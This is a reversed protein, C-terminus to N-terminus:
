VDAVNADCLEGALGKAALWGCFHQTIRQESCEQGAFRQGMTGLRACLATDEWLLQIKAVLDPVSALSATLANEGNHVYDRVGLADTVIVAKGLHMAAVLTVHGSPINFDVLPLVTFRSYFLVNMALGNPLNQYTLVNQPIDLGRLSEPRVVLVFQIHPLQYAANLLTRYDRANGGIASVYAGPQFPFGSRDLTPRNVSWLVVDIRDLPLDFADAYLAREMTSFVVFRDVRRLAISFLRRKLGNPLATFNFAHALIPIELGALLAFICCWVALTPGHTVLAQGKEKRALQIATYCGRIRALNFWKNQELKRRPICRAFEFRIKSLDFNKEVWRWHPDVIETCCVVACPM